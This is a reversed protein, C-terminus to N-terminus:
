CTLRSTNNVTPLFPYTQDELEPCGGVFFSKIQSRNDLSAKWTPLIKHYTGPLSSIKHYGYGEISHRDMWDVSMVKFILIPM